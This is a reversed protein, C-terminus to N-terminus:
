KLLTDRKNLIDSVITQAVVLAPVALLAGLVGMLKGGVMLALITIIPYLGVARQMIKPVIVNNELQQVLFYLAAVALALIPSITFGILIGPIASIIPGMVPVIELLGALIALPLAFEVGLLRLGLYALLGIITMLALEGRVWAGLRQEIKQILVYVREQQEPSVLTALHRELHQRELLLYFTFVGLTIIGVLNSFIDLSLRLLNSTFPTIQDKILSVDLVQPSLRLKAAAQSVYDPLLTLFHASEELLPPVIVMGVIGVGSLVVLYVLLIALGRPIRIYTLKDVLPHVASVIIVAVFLSVIIERIQYLFWLALSFATILILTRTTIEVKRMM